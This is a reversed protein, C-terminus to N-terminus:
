KPLRGTRKAWARVEPWSWLTGMKLRVVPKPFTDDRQQWAHVTQYTGATTREVIEASGVLQDVDMRRGM